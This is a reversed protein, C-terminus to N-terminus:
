GFHKRYREAAKLLAPNPKADVENLLALFLDRDRDSLRTVRQKEMVEDATKLLTVTAFDAVSQGLEAAALELVRLKDKPFALELKAKQLRAKPSKTTARPM